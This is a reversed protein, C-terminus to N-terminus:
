NNLATIVYELQMFNETQIFVNINPNSWKVPKVGHHIWESQIDANAFNVIFLMISILAITFAKMPEGPSTERDMLRAEKEHKGLKLALEFIFKRDPKLM